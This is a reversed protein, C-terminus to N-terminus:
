FGTWKPGWEQYIQVEDSKLKREKEEKEQEPFQIWTRTRASGTSLGTATVHNKPTM